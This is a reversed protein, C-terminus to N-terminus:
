LRCPGVGRSDTYVARVQRDADHWFAYGYRWLEQRTSNLELMQVALPTLGIDLDETHPLITQDRLAGLATGYLVVWEQQLCRLNMFDDLFKLIEFNLFACCSPDHVGCAQDRRCALVPCGAQDMSTAFCTPEFPPLPLMPADTQALGLEGATADAKLLAAQTILSSRTRTSTVLVLLVVLVFLATPAATQRPVGYARSCQLQDASNVVHLRHHMTNCFVAEQFAYQTQPPACGAM